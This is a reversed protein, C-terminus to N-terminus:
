PPVQALTPATEVLAARNSREVSRRRNTGSPALPVVAETVKWAQSWVLPEAPPVPLAEALPPDAGKLVALAVELRVTVLMLLAGWNVPAFLKVVMVSSSADFLPSRTEVSIAPRM